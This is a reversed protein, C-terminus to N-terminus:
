LRYGVGVTIQHLFDTSVAPSDIVQPDPYSLDFYQVGYFLAAQLPDFIQFSLAVDAGAGLWGDIDGYAGGSNSATLIPLFLADIKLSMVSGFYQEVGVGLRAGLYGHGTYYENAAIGINMTEIGALARFRLTASRANIYRGEASIRFFRGSLEQDDFVTSFPSWGVFGGAELAATDRDLTMILGDVHLGLGALMTSHRIAFSGQPQNMQLSRYGFMPGLHATIHRELNGYRQRHAALAQERPSPERDGNSEDEQEETASDDEGSADPPDAFDDDTIDGETVDRRFGRVEPVLLGFVGRLLAIAEDEELSGDALDEASEGLEWGHPGIVVVRVRSSEEEVFHLLIGEAEIDWMVAAIQDVVEGRGEPTEFDERDIGFIRISRRFAGTPVVDIQDSGRVLEDLADYSDNGYRSTMDVVVLRLPDEENAEVEGGPWFSVAFVVIVVVWCQIKSEGMDRVM